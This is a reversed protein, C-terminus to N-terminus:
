IDKMEGFIKKNKKGKKLPINEDFYQSNDYNIDSNNKIENKIAIDNDDIDIDIDINKEDELNKNLDFSYNKKEYILIYVNNNIIESSNIQKIDQNQIEYWLQKKRIM